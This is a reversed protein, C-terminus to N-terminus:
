IRVFNRFKLRDQDKTLRVTSLELIQIADENKASNNVIKTDHATVSSTILLKTEFHWPSIYTILNRM